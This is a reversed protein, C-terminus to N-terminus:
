LSIKELCKEVNSDITWHKWIWDYAAKAIKERRKKDKLLRKVEGAVDDTEVFVGAPFPHGVPQKESVVCAGAAMCEALRFELNDVDYAHLNVIVKCSNIFQNLEVHNYTSITHVDFQKGLEEVIKGRRETLAGYFGVDYKQEIGGLKRFPPMAGIMPLFEANKAGHEQAFSVMDPYDCSVFDAQPCLDAFQDNEEDSVVDDRWLIRPVEPLTSVDIKPAGHSSKIVVATPEEGETRCGLRELSECLRYEIADDFSPNGIVAVLPSDVIRNIRKVNSHESLNSIAYERYVEPKGADALMKAAESTTNFIFESSYFEDASPWNHIIPKLGCMM